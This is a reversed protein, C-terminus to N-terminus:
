GAGEAALADYLAWYRGVVREATYRAEYRRRGAEGMRRRRDPDRLVDDLAAALAVPDGPPVLRGTEDDVVQEVTGAVRSAVVARSAAMAEVVVIPFDELGISPLVLADARALLPWIDPTHGLFRVRDGVGLTRAAVELADREPGEGAVLVTADTTMRTLADFLVTHGKRPELRAIVVLVLDDAPVDVTSVSTEASRDLVTNNIVELKGPELGLVETLRRGAAESGTVFRTVVDRLRRDVPWDAWRGPRDYGHALNNVVYVISRVGARAAALAAATCSIAGPFGGNNVHVVDPREEEFLRTLRTLDLALSVKRLPLVRGAGRVASALGGSGEGILSTKFAEPDPLELPRAAVGAPLRAHLGPTYEPWPRYTFQPEISPDRWAADLLVMLTTESGSFWYNDTHFHIRRSV